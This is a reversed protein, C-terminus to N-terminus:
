LINSGTHTKSIECAQSKFLNIEIFVFKVMIELVTYVKQTTATKFKFRIGMKEKMAVM